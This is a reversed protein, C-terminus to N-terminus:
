PANKLILPFYYKRAASCTPFKFSGIRTKWAGGTTEYYENTYWFTCDDSPDVSMASYDGWRDCPSGGCNVVQAGTGQILTAEGQGLGNLADTGLRGAYRVSPYLTSSSVSYGLAMNGNADVALSGMWRNHGDPQYTSQQFVSPTGTLNRIEYWRIGATGGSSVTHNLWLSETGNINRYQNQMMLRDGLTDLTRTTGQQPIQTALFTWPATTVLTPGTFSSAAPNGWDVHFKWIGVSALTTLAAFYNPAGTPPAAGRVNAPLLSDASTIDFFQSSSPAGSILATRNLAWVRVGRFLDTSDFLNASMYYGDSWIGLKPYDNIFSNHALLAYQWWGGSVPDSTKSVAICEYFPGSNGSWAFDTIIWRDSFPDYLVVPDGNNAADCPTGTGNFFADFSFSALRTGTKSFIGIATNVTQIYHNPGVDGNTDPPYADGGDGLALGKFNASAAPMAAPAAPAELAPDLVQAQAAAGAPLRKAIGPRRSRRFSRIEQPLDRLDGNFSVARAPQGAFPGKVDNSRAAAPALTTIQSVCLSALLAIWLVFLRATQHPQKM